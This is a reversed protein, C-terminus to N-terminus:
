KSKKIEKKIITVIGKVTKNLNRNIVTYEYDKKYSLEVHARKLRKIIDQYKETRRKALRKRLENFSPPLVFIFTSNPFEKMLKRGGQVDVDMLVDYGKEITDTLFKRPTGYLNGHVEAYEIFRKQKVWKLFEKKTLFFYERGNKEGKRRPRSTASISYRMGPVNKLIYECLTTKGVGSPGSLVFLKGRVKMVPTFARSWFPRNM